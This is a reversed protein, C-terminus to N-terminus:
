QQCRRCFYTARQALVLQEIPTACIRCPEDARGYVTLKQAFYGPKGSGDVFDRLTTGGQKISAKLVKKIAAALAVCEEATLSSAPRTPLVHSMFLAESAYINGVGVVVKSDMIVTKIAAKRRALKHQLYEADFARSLPEPGLDKLLPHAAVDGKLWLVAGFRRPDRLRLAIVDDLVIDVHDHKEPAVTTEVIRLSGSMGLHIMVTGADSRLLLYKGRREVARIMEGPLETTVKRPIPYRLARKRLVVESVVAGEVFRAIGRRTTEVEPLEPM